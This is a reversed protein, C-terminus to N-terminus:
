PTQWGGGDSISAQAAACVRMVRLAEAPGTHPTSRETCCHLFHEVEARLPEGQPVPVAQGTGPNPRPRGDPGPVAQEPYLMLKEAWPLTDDFVASAASGIVTLRQEKYPNMWNAYCHARIGDAFHLHTHVVDQIGPSLWDGGIALVREPLRGDLLALIMSVDHPSLCWLASEAFRFAGLNVRHAAIYRLSGLSGEQVLECLHRFVPHYQLLHGTMLVRGREGALACLEQAEALDLVLPKEVYVDMDATLAARVIANHTPASTAVVLAQVSGAAILDQADRYTSAQPYLEGQAQLNAPEHDVLAALAGCQHLNRALNRGWAGCGILGARIM